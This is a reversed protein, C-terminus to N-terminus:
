RPARGTYGVLKDLEPAGEDVAVAPGFSGTGRMEPTIAQQAFAYAAAVLAPDPAFAQGTATALDWSHVLLDLAAISMAVGYPMTGFPLAVMTESVGPAHAAADFDARARAFAGAPDDGVLDPMPADPDMDLEGRLAAAFMHGGGTLHNCLDRVRFDTCPTPADLQDARM